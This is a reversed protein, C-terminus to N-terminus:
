GVTPGSQATPGHSQQGVASPDPAQDVPNAYPNRNTPDPYAPGDLSFSEVTELGSPETESGMNWSWSDSVEETPNVATEIQETTDPVDTRDNVATTVQDSQTVTGVTQDHNQSPQSTEPNREHNAGTSKLYEMRLYEDREDRMQGLEDQFFATMEKDGYTSIWDELKNQLGADIDWEHIEDFPLAGMLSAACMRDAPTADAARPGFGFAEFLLPSLHEFRADYQHQDDPNDAFGHLNEFENLEHGLVASVRETMFRFRDVGDGRWSQLDKWIKDYSEESFGCSIVRFPERFADLYRDRSVVSPDTDWDIIVDGIDEWDEWEEWTEDCKHLYEEYVFNFVELLSSGKQDDISKTRYAYANFAGMIDATNWDTRRPESWEYSSADGGHQRANLEALEKARRKTSERIEEDSIDIKIEGDFVGKRLMDAKEKVSQEMVWALVNIHEAPLIGHNVM